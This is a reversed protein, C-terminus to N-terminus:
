LKTFLKQAHWKSLAETESMGDKGNGGAKGKGSGVELGIMGVESDLIGVQLRHMQLEEFVKALVLEVAKQGLGKARWKQKLVIGLNLSSSLMDAPSANLYIFGIM